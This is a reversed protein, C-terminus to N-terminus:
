FRPDKRYLIYEETKIFEIGKEWDMIEGFVAAINQEAKYVNVATVYGKKRTNYRKDWYYFYFFNERINDPFAPLEQNNIKEVIAGSDTVSINSYEMDSRVTHGCNM